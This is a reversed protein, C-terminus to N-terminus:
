TGLSGSEQSIRVVWEQKKGKGREVSCRDSWVLKYAHHTFAGFAVRLSTKKYDELVWLIIWEPAVDGYVTGELYKYLIRVLM